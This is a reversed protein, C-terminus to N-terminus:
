RCRSSSRPLARCARGARRIPTPVFMPYTSRRGALLVVGFLALLMAGWPPPREIALEEDARMSAYWPEGPPMPPIYGSIRGSV